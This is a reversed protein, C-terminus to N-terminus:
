KCWFGVYCHEKSSVESRLYDLLGLDVSKNIPDFVFEARTKGRIM